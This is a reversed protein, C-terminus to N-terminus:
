SAGSFLFDDGDRKKLGEGVIELTGLPNLEGAWRTMLTLPWRPSMSVWSISVEGPVKEAM